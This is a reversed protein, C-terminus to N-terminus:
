DRQTPNRHFGEHSTNARSRDQDWNCSPSQMQATCSQLASFSRFHHGKIYSIQTGQGNTYRNHNRIAQLFVPFALCIIKLFIFALSFAPFHLNRAEGRIHLMAIFDLGERPDDPAWPLRRLITHLSIQHWLKVSKLIM